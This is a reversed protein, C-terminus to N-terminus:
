PGAVHGSPGRGDASAASEAIQVGAGLHELLAGAYDGDKSRRVAVQRLRRRAEPTASEVAELAAAVFGDVNGPEVVSGLDGIIDLCGLDADYAVFSTGVLLAQAVTAPGPDQRSTLLYVDAARYWAASHEVFGPLVLDLGAAQAASALEAAQPSLEGLWVFRAAVSRDAITAAAELFLDFGKREDGYGAGICVPGSGALLSRVREWEDSPVPAPLVKPRVVPLPGLERRLAAAMTPNSALVVTGAAMAASVPAILKRAELHDRMEHLALLCPHGRGAFAEAVPATVGSLVIAPVDSSLSDVCGDLSWGEALVVTPGVSRFEDLLPGAQLLLVVPQWGREALSRALDLTLIPVGARRADHAALVIPRDLETTLRRLVASTWVTSRVHPRPQHGKGRGVSVFHHFPRTAAAPLYTTRYFWADFSSSPQRCERDGHRMFHLARQAGLAAVDPYMAGYHNPDILPHPQREDGETVRRLWDHLATPAHHDRWDPFSEKYFVTSFYPSPDLGLRDGHRLFHEYGDAPSCGAQSAYFATDFIDPQDSPSATM